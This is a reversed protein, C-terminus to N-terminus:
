IKMFVIDLILTKKEIHSFSECHQASIIIIIFIVSKIKAGAITCLKNQEAHFFALIYLFVSLTMEGVELKENLESGDLGSLNTESYWVWAASVFRRSITSTRWVGKWFVISIGTHSWSDKAYRGTTIEAHKTVKTSRKKPCFHCFRRPLPPSIYVRKCWHTTNGERTVRANLFFHSM